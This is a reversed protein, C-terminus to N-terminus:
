AQHNLRRRIVQPTDLATSRAVPWRTGHWTFLRAPHDSPANSEGIVAAPTAGLVSAFIFPSAPRGLTGDRQNIQRMVDIGSTFVSHEIVRLMSEVVAAAGDAFSRDDRLDIEVLMVDALQGVVAEAEATRGFNALTLTFHRSSWTALVGAYAALLAQTPTLHRRRCQHQM